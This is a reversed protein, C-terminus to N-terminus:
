SLERLESVGQLVKSSVIANHTQVKSDMGQRLETFKAIFEDVKANSDIM